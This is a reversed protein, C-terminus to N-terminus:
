ITEVGRGGDDASVFEPEALIVQSMADAAASFGDIKDGAAKKDPKVNGAADMTVALNDVQWRMLDNGGHRFRPARASGALLLHKIQKTPASMSAFGQGLQVMPADEQVLDNVLQSANWRDYAIAEVQFTQCDRLIQARIFDYDAVDGPTVELLGLDRWVSAKGATRSNLDIYAREPMWHRWIADLGGEGDPFMWCLACLDSTSSLDLGGYATRGNLTDLNVLGANRDWVDLELYKTEQRTRIGLHLRLYASKEAPSQRAKAAVRKLFAKTPSIGFGPNAKRQTEESFPDDEADAAFVVGYTSADTLVHRALKEVYDRKRAYITDQRGDDATTIMVILPQTRAGTGTEIAEVLDPKKHLHLEDIVAGHINGGHLAEAVSSVVQMYSGSRTHVIRRQMPKVFGRLGPSEAAIQRLPDFVFKAQDVSTAAALVQAGSERDAATLYLGIGGVLTSKGNKRPVDILVTSIIRAYDEVERNYVVWGFVPALIYAVQWPDPELVRGAWRGQTHRLQRFAAMVRDVRAADFVSGRVNRPEPTHIKPRCTPPKIKRSLLYHAVEPSVDIQGALEVAREELSRTPRVPTRSRTAAPPSQRTPM